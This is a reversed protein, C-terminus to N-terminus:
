LDGQVAQLAALGALGATETRLIRPGLRLGIFGAAELMATEDGSLGGEPGVLLSAGSAAPALDRPAQTAQPLLALRLQGDGALGNGALGNCWPQLSQLPAISPLVCRGCQECASIAISQWHQRRREARSADLRVGCRETLLPVIAAVGLETAKQIIWDMKQNSVLAQALVLHLRDRPIGPASPGVRVRAERRTCTTLESAHESGDGNFLVIADGPRMRLARSVHETARPDLSIDAGAQLPQDTFIRTRRM